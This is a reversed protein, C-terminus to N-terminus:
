KNNASDSKEEKEIIKIIILIALLALMLPFISELLIFEIDVKRDVQKKLNINEDKKSQEINYNKYYEKLNIEEEKGNRDIKYYPTEKDLQEGYAYGEDNFYSLRFYKPEIIIDGKNNIYGFLNIYHGGGHGFFRPNLNEKVGIKALGNYFDEAYEFKPEILVHNKNDMYGYKITTETNNIIAKNIYGIAISLLIIPILLILCKKIKTKKLKEKNRSIVIKVLIGYLIILPIIIYFHGVLEAYEGIIEVASETVTPVYVVDAYCFNSIGILLIILLISVIVKKM